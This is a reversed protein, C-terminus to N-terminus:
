LRSLEKGEDWSLTREHCIVLSSTHCRESKGTTDRAPSLLGSSELQATDQLYSSNLHSALLSPSQSAPHRININENSYLLIKAMKQPDFFLFLLHSHSNKLCSQCSLPFTKCHRRRQWVPIWIANLCFPNHTFHLASLPFHFIDLRTKTLVSIINVQSAISLPAALPHGFVIATGWVERRVLWMHM